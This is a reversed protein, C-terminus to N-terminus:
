IPSIEQLAKATAQVIVEWEVKHVRSEFEELPEGHKMEVEKVLIPEGRDVEKIVRHVMVGSHNIDGKQFAEYARDIANTGDFTGPLAPHLNIVPIAKQVKEEAELIKDGSLVDLFNESMIHMWGALVVLDPKKHIVLRAIEEDYDTRTKGPNQKLYTQLALYATPIPPIAQIARTLGYAAKRNSIVLSIRTNPLAPTNQADILAQLNTGSGSILVVIQRQSQTQPPNSM